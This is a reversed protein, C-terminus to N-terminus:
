DNTRAHLFHNLKLVGFFNELLKKSEPNEAPGLQSVAFLYDKCQDLYPKQGAHIEKNFEDDFYADLHWENALVTTVTAKQERMKQTVSSLFQQKDPSKENNILTLFDAFLQTENKNIVAGFTSGSHKRVEFNLRNRTEYKADKVEGLLERSKIVAERLPHKVYSIYVGFSICPKIPNGNTDTLNKYEEKDFCKTFCDDIDKITDFITKKKNNVINAVPAFFLLDDGGMYLPAAGYGWDEKEGATYRSGAIIAYAQKSFSNLRKSFTEIDKQFQASDIGNEEIATLLKGMNDGDATVVAVYNHYTRFFDDTEAMEILGAFPEKDDEDILENEAIKTEDEAARKIAEYVIEAADDYQTKYETRLERLAIEPLSDFHTVKSHFCDTLLFTHNVAHLFLRLPNPDADVLSCRLELQDLVTNITKLRNFGLMIEASLDVECSYIQFYKELYEIAKEKNKVIESIGVKQYGNHRKVYRAERTEDTLAGTIKKALDKKVESIADIIDEYSFTDSKALIIKDPLFGAGPKLADSVNRYPMIYNEPKCGKTEFEEILSRCIFSFIYSAAWTERTKTVMQMTKYIPGITIGIYTNSM